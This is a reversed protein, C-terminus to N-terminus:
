RTTRRLQSRIAEPDRGADIPPRAVDGRAQGRADRSRDHVHQVRRRVPRRDIPTKKPGGGGVIIPLDGTAKPLVDIPELSYHRGAFGTEGPDSAPSASLRANRLAPQVAGVPRPTRHRVARARAGDLRHRGRTGAPRRVDRRGNSGDQGHRRPPPLHATHGARDLKIPQHRPGLGALTTLADTAPVSEDMNLYHDSRAFSDFGSSKPGRALRLLDDYTGGVQPETMFSFQM